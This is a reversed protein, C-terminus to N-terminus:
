TRTFSVTCFMKAKNNLMSVHVPKVLKVLIINDYKM